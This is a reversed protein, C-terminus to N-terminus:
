DRFVRFRKIRKRSKSDLRATIGALLCDRLSTPVDGPRNDIFTAPWDMRITYGLDIEKVKIVPRTDALTPMNECVIDRVISIAPSIKKKIYEADIFTKEGLLGGSVAFDVEASLNNTRAIKELDEETQATKGSSKKDITRYILYALGTGVLIPFLKM